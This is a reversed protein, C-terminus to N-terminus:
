YPNPPPKSVPGTPRPAPGLRSPPSASPSPLATSSSPLGVTASLVAPSGASASATGSTVPTSAASASSTASAPPSVASSAGEPSRTALFLAAGGALLTGTAALGLGLPSWTAKRPVGAISTIDTQVLTDAPGSSSSSSSSSSSPLPLKETAIQRGSGPAPQAVDPLSFAGPRPLAGEDAVLRAIEKRRAALDDGMVTAVLAAVEDARAVLGAARASSELAAAFAAASQFRRKPDKALAAELVDDLCALEPRYTAFAPPDWGILRQLTDIESDGDFLPRADIAERLVVALGFVDFGRDIPRGLLYEPAMYRFKGKLVGETTVYADPRVFKAIGFDTIRSVGDVGVLINQPSVDRHVLHMPTGDDDALEHAAHLGAAADLVIRVCVAVPVRLGARKAASLVVSLSGGEIYDMVLYLEDGLDEVDRVDVVNAHRLRAAVHAEELFSRRYGPTELLHPHPRKIAVLQRFGLGGTAAGVYVTAM